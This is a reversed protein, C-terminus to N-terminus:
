LISDQQAPPFEGEVIEPVVIRLDPQHSLGVPGWRQVLSAQNIELVELRLISLCRHKHDQVEEQAHIAQNRLPPAALNTLKSSAYDIQIYAQLQLPKRHHLPQSRSNRHCKPVMEAVVSIDCATLISRLPRQRVLPCSHLQIQLWAEHALILNYWLADQAAIRCIQAIRLHDLRLSNRQLQLDSLNAHVVLRTEEQNRHVLRVITAAAKGVVHVLLHVRLYKQLLM